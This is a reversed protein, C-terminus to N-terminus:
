MHMLYFFRTLEEITRSLLFVMREVLFPATLLLVAEGLPPKVQFGLQFVNVQPAVRSVLGFAFDLLFIVLVIPAALSIGIAFIGGALEAMSRGAMAFNWTNFMPLVDYSKRLAVLLLHHGDVILFLIMLINQYLTTIISEQGGEAPDFTSAVSLAMQMGIIEGAAKIGAFLLEAVTGLMIGIFLEQMLVLILPLFAGVMFTKPVPVVFWLTITIWIILGIKATRSIIRNSFFPATLFLGISRAMIVMFIFVQNVNLLM